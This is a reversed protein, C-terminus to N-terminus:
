NGIMGQLLLAIIKAVQARTANAAPAFSGDSYGSILGARQVATVADSTYSSIDSGDTFTVAGNTEPLTYNAVKKAYRAIMVAIDQRTINDNPDFKGSAGAAIGKEYAWQVAKFYWGSPKVDVFSSTKYCSIDDGSLNALITVFQARTINKDPSFKGNGTGNVIARAALFYVYDEYWGSVDAFSINSYGVTYNSFHTTTFTVTGIAADYVCNPVMILEGSDSIRYVVIKSADEGEALQYPISVTASGGGFSSIVSGGAEVSFNYVPHSGVQRQEEGSLSSADVKKVYIKIDNSGAASSFSATTKADFTLTAPVSDIRVAADTRNSIEALIGGPITVETSTASSPAAVHIDLIASRGNGEAAQAKNLLSQMVNSPVTASTVGDSNTTGTVTATTTETNNLNDTNTYISPSDALSFVKIPITVSTNNNDDFIVTLSTTGAIRGSVAVAGPSSLRIPNAEATKSDKVAITASNAAATGQGFAVTFKVTDGCYLTLSDKSVTPLLPKVETTFSYDTNDLILSGRMDQFGSVGVTYLTNYNLAAYPISYTTDDTWSGSGTLAEENLSVTGHGTAMARSFTVTLSGSAAVGASNYVPTISLVAPRAETTFSYDTNELIASGRTDQFGSIGITYLKSCDLGAYPISYTTDNTWSGSGTLPEGNLSVTGHGAAMARSFTVTLSGSALVGVTGDAPAVGQVAPRAETTFSYDTNDLIANGRTDQFGSIGITYLKSCDLGAYPISYTTDNTWSGSGTLPEGNLSVTGHGAAMARSFTVTLSGSTLVNTAGKGPTVSQVTPRAETTFSGSHGSEMGNGVADKFGDVTATYETSCDLGSYPIRYTNSSLWSGGGLNKSSGGDVFLTVTGAAASMAESFTIEMNGSTPINTALNEPTLSTVEPATTDVKIGTTAAANNLKLQADTTGGKITGGNLVIADGLVIGDTDNYGAAATYRFTLINSGSGSVYSADAQKSGVTLPLIPTGNSTDVTVSSNFSVTFDLSDGTKYTRSAPVAVKTVAPLVTLSDSCFNSAYDTEYDGNCQEMFYRITYNGAALGAPITLSVNGVRNYQDTTIQELRGYYLANNESDTIIASIYENIGPNEECRAQYTITTTDGPVGTVPLFVASLNRKDPDLLTLKWENVTRSGVATLADAGVTGSVKGGKAPSAFLAESLALNCAPRVGYTHLYYDPAGYNLEGPRDVFGADYTTPSRLWWSSSNERSPDSTDGNAAFGYDANTAEAASLAYLYEGNLGCGQLPSANNLSVSADTGKTTSLVAGREQATFCSNGGNYLSACAAHVNSDSYACVNVSSCYIMNGLMPESMLFLGKGFYSCTGNLSTSLVRWKVASGNYNGFYLWNAGGGRIHFQDNSSDMQITKVDTSAAYAKPFIGPLLMLALAMCLLLGLFRNRGTKM